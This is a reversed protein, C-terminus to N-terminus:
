EAKALRYRLLDKVRADFGMEVCITCDRANLIANENPSSTQAYGHTPRLATRFGAAASNELRDPM